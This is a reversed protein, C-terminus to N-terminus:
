AILQMAKDPDDGTVRVVFEDLGQSHTHGILRPVPAATVTFRVSRGLPSPYIDDISVSMSGDDIDVTDGISFPLQDAM